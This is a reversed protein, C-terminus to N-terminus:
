FVSVPLSHLCFDHVESGLIGSFQYSRASETEGVMYGSSSDNNISAGASCVSSENRAEKKSFKGYHMHTFHKM